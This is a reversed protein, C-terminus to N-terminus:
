PALTLPEPLACRRTEGGGPQRPVVVTPTAARAVRPANIFVQRLAPSAHAPGPTPALAAPYASAALTLPSPLYEERAKPTHRPAAVRCAHPKAVPPM